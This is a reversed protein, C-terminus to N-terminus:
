KNHKENNVPVLNGDIITYEQITNKEFTYKKIPNDGIMKIKRKEYESTLDKKNKSIKDEFYKKKKIGSSENNNVDDKNEEDVENESNGKLNPIKKLKSILNNNDCELFLNIQFLEKLNIDEKLNFLNDILERNGSTMIHELSEGLEGKTFDRKQALIMAIDGEFNIIGRPSYIFNNDSRNLYKKYHTFREHKQLFSIKVRKIYNADNKIDLENKTLFHSFIKKENYITIDTNLITNALYDTGYFLRIGYKPLCKILDLKIQNLTLMSIKCTVINESKKILTESVNFSSNFQLFYPYLFSKKTLNLILDINNNNADRYINDNDFDILDFIIKENEIPMELCDVIMNCAAYFLKSLQISDDEIKKCNEYFSNLSNIIEKYKNYKFENFDLNDNKYFIQKFIIYKGHKNLLDIDYENFNQINGEFYKDFRKINFSRTCIRIDEQIIDKNKEFNELSDINDILKIYELKKILEIKFNDEIVKPYKFNNKDFYSLVDLNKGVLFLIDRPIEEELIECPNKKLHDSSDYYVLPNGNLKIKERNINLINIRKFIQNEEFKEEYNINYKNDITIAPFNKFFIFESSNSPVNENKRFCFYFNKENYYIALSCKNDETKDNFFLDINKYYCNDFPINNDDIILELRNQNIKYKNDFIILKKLPYNEEYDLFNFIITFEKSIPFHNSLLAGFIIIENLNDGEKDNFIYIEDFIEGIGYAKKTLERIEKILYQGDESQNNIKVLEDNSSINKLNIDFKNIISNFIRKNKEIISIEIKEDYKILAVTKNKTNKDGLFFGISKNLDIFKIIQIKAMIAARHLMLLIENSLNNFIIIAKKLQKDTLNKIILKINEFLKILIHDLLYIKGSKIIEIKFIEDTCTIKLYDGIQGLTGKNINELIEKTDIKTEDDIKVLYNFRSNQEKDKIIIKQNDMEYGIVINKGLKIAFIENKM